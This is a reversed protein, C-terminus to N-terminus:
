HEGYLKTTRVLVENHEDNFKRKLGWRETMEVTLLKWWWTLKFWLKCGMCLVNLMQDLENRAVAQTCQVLACGWTRVDSGWDTYVRRRRTGCLIDGTPQQPKRFAATHGYWGQFINGYVKRAIYNVDFIDQNGLNMRARNDPVTTLVRRQVFYSGGYNWHKYKNPDRLKRWNLDTSKQSAKMFSFLSRQKLNATQNQFELSVSLM